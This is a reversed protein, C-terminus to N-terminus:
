TKTMQTHKEDTKLMAPSTTVATTHINTEGLKTPTLRRLREDYKQVPAGPLERSGSVGQSSGPSPDSSGPAGLVPTQSVGPAKSSGPSGEPSGREPRSSGPSGRELPRRPTEQSSWPTEPPPDGPLPTPAGGSVGSSGPLDGRDGPAGPTPHLNM